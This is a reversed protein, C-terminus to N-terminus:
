TDASVTSRMCCSRLKRAMSNLVAAVFCITRRRRSASASPSIRQKQALRPWGTETVHCITKGCKGTQLVKPAIGWGGSDCALQFEMRIAGHSSHCLSQQPEM